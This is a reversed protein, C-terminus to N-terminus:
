QCNTHLTLTGQIGERGGTGAQHQPELVTGAHSSPCFNKYLCLSLKAEHNINKFNQKLLFNEKGLHQKTKM